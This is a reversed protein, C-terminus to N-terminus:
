AHDPSDGLVKAHDAVLHYKRWQDPLFSPSAPSGDIFTGTTTYAATSQSTITTIGSAINYDYLTTYNTIAIIHNALDNLGTSGSTIANLLFNADFNVLTSERNDKQVSMGAPLVGIIAVLAFAIVGLALAIEIM